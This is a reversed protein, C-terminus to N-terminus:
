IAQFYALLFDLRPIQITGVGRIKMETLKQFLATSTFYNDCAVDTDEPLNKVLDLVVLGSKGIGPHEEEEENAYM